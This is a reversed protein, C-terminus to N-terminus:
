GRPDWRPSVEPDSVIGLHDLVRAVVTDALEDLTQPRHYFAPSAPLVMAGADHLRLLNELLIRNFPAERPVMVLPRREKLTVQAARDILTNGLGSAIAGVTNASAPIVVMGRVPHSGSAISAGLDQNRHCVLRDGVPFGYRAALADVLARPEGPLDREEKFLRGGYVSLVLEVRHGGEFLAKLLREAYLAGSAGTVAVIVPGTSM